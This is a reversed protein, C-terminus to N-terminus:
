PQRVPKGAADTNGSWQAIGGGDLLVEGWGGKTPGFRNNKIIAGSLPTGLRLIYGGGALYNGTVELNKAPNEASPMVFIAGNQHAGDYALGNVSIDIRNNRIKLNPGGYAQIGDNHTNNPPSGFVRMGHIHNQEILSDGRGNQIGDPAGSIDNRILTMRADGHIVGNGWQPGPIQDDKYTITSDRVDVHGSIAMLPSWSRHNGEIVSGRITLTGHGSYEVGGKVWVGELTVNGGGFRLAGENWETGPPASAPGDVVKLRQRDGRFGVQGPAPVAGPALAGPPAATKSTTPKITATASTPASTVSTPPLLSTTPPATTPAPQIVVPDPPPVPLDPAPKGALPKCAAVLVVAAVAALLRASLDAAM